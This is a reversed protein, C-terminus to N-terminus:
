ACVVTRKGVTGQYSNMMFFSCVMFVFLSIAAIVTLAPRIRPGVANACSSVGTSQLVQWGRRLGSDLFFSSVILNKSDCLLSAFALFAIVRDHILVPFFHSDSHIGVALEHASM